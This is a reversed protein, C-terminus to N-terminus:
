RDEMPLTELHMVPGDASESRIVRYLPNSFYDLDSIWVEGDDPFDALMLRLKGVNIQTKDPVYKASILM